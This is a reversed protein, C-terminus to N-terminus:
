EAEGRHEPGIGSPSADTCAKELNRLRAELRDAELRLADIDEFLAEAELRAPLTDSEEQLYEEVNRALVGRAESSWQLGQRLRRAIFHAPIGGIIEALSAEWDLELGQLIRQLRQAQAVDGTLRIRGDHFVSDDGLAAAAFALPSGALVLAPPVESHWQVRLARSDAMLYLEIGPPDLRLLFPEELLAQLAKFSAPDLALARNLAQEMAAAFGTGLTRGWESM